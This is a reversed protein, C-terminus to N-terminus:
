TLPTWTGDSNRCAAGRKTVPGTAANVTETYQRCNQSGVQYPTAAVVQGTIGSQGTWPVSQGGPASELAKYEARLATERDDDTLAVNGVQGILGGHLAKLYMDEPSSSSMQAFALPLSSSRGTTSTACGSAIVALALAAGTKLWKIM